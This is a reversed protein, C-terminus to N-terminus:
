PTIATGERGYLADRANELSTILAIKGGSEIFNVAAEIKPRMSGPAFQGEEIHRRAEALTMRRLPIQNPTGYNLFVRDVDTLVLLCEAGIVGALLAGGLDKDIVAEVGTMISGDKSITVPIGGGGAAIVIVGADFLRAIIPAEVISKPLPSPVVRRYGRGSDNVIGWGKEKRLIEAEPESYFPGIPKTPNRFAPDDGDVVTQTLITAVSARIGALRLEDGMSQQMMYGIMGQSEAGCVDLPMPAIVSKAMEGALLIDGVQPGNGHTIAIQNGDKLIEVLRKCAADVSAFQERATGRAGRRLIANGGLAVLIKM